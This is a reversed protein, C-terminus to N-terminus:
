LANMEGEIYPDWCAPKYEPIPRVLSM